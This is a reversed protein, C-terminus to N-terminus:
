QRRRYFAWGALMAITTISFTVLSWKTISALTSILPLPDVVTAYAADSLFIQQVSNELVDCLGAVIPAVLVANLRSPANAAELSIALLTLLLGTYWVWHINDIMFHARYFPMLGQIDWQAFVEHYREATVASVQLMLLELAGLNELLAAITGQSILYITGFAFAIWGHSGHHRLASLLTGLSM